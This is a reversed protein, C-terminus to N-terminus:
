KASDIRKVKRDNDYICFNPSGLPMIRNSPAACFECLKSSGADPLLIRDNGSYLDWPVTPSISTCLLVIFLYFNTNKINMVDRNSTRAM